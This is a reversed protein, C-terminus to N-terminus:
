DRWCDLEGAYRRAALHCAAISDRDGDAASAYLELTLQRGRRRRKPTGRAMGGFKQRGAPKYWWLVINRRAVPLSLCNNTSELM